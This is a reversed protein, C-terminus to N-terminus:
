PFAQLIGFVSPPWPVPPRLGEPCVWVIIAVALDGPLPELWPLLSPLSTRPTATALRWREAVLQPLYQVMLYDAIAGSFATKSELM